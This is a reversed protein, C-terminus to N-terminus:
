KGGEAGVVAAAAACVGTFHLVQRANDTDATVEM